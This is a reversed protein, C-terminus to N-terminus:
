SRVVATPQATDPCRRCGNRPRSQPRHGLCGGICRGLRDLHRDDFGDAPSQKVFHLAILAHQQQPQVNPAQASYEAGGGAKEIAEPGVTRNVRGKRPM